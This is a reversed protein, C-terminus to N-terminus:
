PDRVKQHRHPSSTMIPAHRQGRTRECLQRSPGVEGLHHRAAPSTMCEGRGVAIDGVEMGVQINVQVERRPGDPPEFLVERAGGGDPEHRARLPHRQVQVNGCVDVSKAPHAHGASAAQAAIGGGVVLALGAASGLVWTRLSRNSKKARIHRM